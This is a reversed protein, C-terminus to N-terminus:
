EPRVLQEHVVIHTREEPKFWSVYDNDSKPPVDLVLLKGDPGKGVVDCYIPPFGEFPAFNVAFPIEEDEQDWWEWGDVKKRSRCVPNQVWTEVETM